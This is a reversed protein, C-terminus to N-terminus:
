PYARAILSPFKSDRLRVFAQTDHALGFRRVWALTHENIAKLHPNVEPPFPCYLQPIVFDEQRM